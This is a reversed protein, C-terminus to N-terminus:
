RLSKHGKGMQAMVKYHSLGWPGVMIPCMPCMTGTRLALVSVQPEPSLSDGVGRPLCHQPTARYGVEDLRMPSAVSDGKGSDWSHALYRTYM